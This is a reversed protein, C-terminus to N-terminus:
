AQVSPFIFQIPIEWQIGYVTHNVSGHNICSCKGQVAHRPRTYRVGNGYIANRLSNHSKRSANVWRRIYYDFLRRSAASHVTLKQRQKRFFPEVIYARAHAHTSRRTTSPSPFLCRNKNKGPINGRRYVNRVMESGIRRELSRREMWEDYGM